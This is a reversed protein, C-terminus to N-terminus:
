QSNPISHVSQIRLSKAEFVIFVREGRIPAPSLKGSLKLNHSRGYKDIVSITNSDISNVTGLLLKAVEETQAQKTTIKSPQWYLEGTDGGMKALLKGPINRATAQYTIQTPTTSVRQVDVLGSAYSIPTTKRSEVDTSITSAIAQALQTQLLALEIESRYTISMLSKYTGYFLFLGLTISVALAGASSALLKNSALFSPAQLLLKLAALVGFFALLGVIAPGILLASVSNVIHASTNMPLRYRYFLVAALVSAGVPLATALADTFVSKRHEDMKIKVVASAPVEAETRIEAILRKLRAESPAAINLVAACSACEHAHSIRDSHLVGEVYLELEYPELCDPGPYQSERLARREQELLESVTKDLRSAREKFSTLWERGTYFEKLEDLNLEKVLEEFEPPKPVDKVNRSNVTIRGLM